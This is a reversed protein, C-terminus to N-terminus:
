YIDRNYLKELWQILTNSQKKPRQMIGRPDDHEWLVVICDGDTVKSVDLCFHDGNGVAVIPILRNLMQPEAEVHEFCSVELVSEADSVDPGLGYVTDSYVEM